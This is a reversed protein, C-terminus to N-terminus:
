VKSLALLNDSTGAWAGRRYQATLLDAHSAPLVDKRNAYSVM